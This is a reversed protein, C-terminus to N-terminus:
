SAKKAQAALTKAFTSTMTPDMKELERMLQIRTQELNKGVEALAVDLKMQDEKLRLHYQTQNELTIVIQHIRKVSASLEGEAAM